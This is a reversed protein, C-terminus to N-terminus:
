ATPPTTLIKNYTLQISERKKEFTNKIANLENSWNVDRHMYAINQSFAEVFKTFSNEAVLKQNPTLDKTHEKHKEYLWDLLTKINEPDRMNHAVMKDFTEQIANWIEPTSELIKLASNVVTDVRLQAEPSLHLTDNHTSGDIESTAENRLTM